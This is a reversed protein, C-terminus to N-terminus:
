ILKREHKRKRGIMKKIVPDFVKKEEETVRIHIYMKKKRFCPLRPRAM